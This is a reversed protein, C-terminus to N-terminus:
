SLFMYSDRAHDIRYIDIYWSYIIRIDTSELQRQGFYNFSVSFSVVPWSSL